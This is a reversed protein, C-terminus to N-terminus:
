RSRRHRAVVVTVDDRRRTFDRYLVGAILSPHRSSLGPYSALNWHTGLGDTHLVITSNPPVPYNHEQLRIAVHGAIGNHSILNQRSGDERLVAAAINGLGAYRAFGRELDLTFLAVAAGRTPRLAAHVRELMHRPEADPDLEFTGIAQRAADHAGLGHGLGDAVITTFRESRLRWAWADGCIEEGPKSACVAGIEFAQAEANLQPQKRVRAAIVTGAPQTYIWFDDSQRRIAGLGHGLTGATSYGDAQSVALDTIGPGADIALVEIAPPETPSDLARLLIEGNRAHKALNTALESVVLVLQGTRTADLEVRQALWQAARRPEGVQSLDTVAFAAAPNMAM